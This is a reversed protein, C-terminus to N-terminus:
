SNLLEIVQPHLTASAAISSDARHASSGDWATIRGGAGHVIPILPILDWPNMKADLMIDGFGSAVLLYGYCDGWTRFLKTASRLKEFGTLGRERKITDVDTTFLSADALRTRQRMTVPRGNFTTLECDGIVLQEMVPQHITGLLPEGQYLLGILTGFLPCAHTFSITGDIPDLSWVFEADEQYNGFEEGIIGHSPFQKMIRERMVREAERDAITVPTDNEKTDVMLGPSAFYPIIVEASLQALEMMFARMKEKEIESLKRM